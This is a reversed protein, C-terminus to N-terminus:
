VEKLYFLSDDRYGLPLLLSKWGKRGECNILSCGFNKAVISLYEDVEVLNMPVPNHEDKGSWFFYLVKTLPTHNISYLGCYGSEPQYFGFLSGEHISKLASPTDWTLGLATKELARGLPKEMLHWIKDVNDGLVHIVM